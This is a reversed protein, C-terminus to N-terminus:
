YIGLSPRSASASYRLTGREERYERTMRSFMRASVVISAAFALVLLLILVVIMGLHRIKPDNREKQLKLRNLM